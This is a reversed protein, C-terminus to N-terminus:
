GLVVPALVDLDAIAQDLTETLPQICVHDAGADLHERIRARIAEPSGWGILDDVLRDSGGDAFDAESYGLSLLNNVYNPLALYPRMNTRAMARASVPDEDLVVMLEPALLPGEGLVARARRTHEVPTFFPHAGATRERALELMRPRLAALMLPVPPDALPGRYSAADMGDLYARMASVPGAYDHGRATVLPAHSVGLGFLFRGPFAEGLAQSGAQAAYPDRAYINAIGTAIALTSTGSLLIASNSFVEKNTGGEGIWLTGFGLREIESAAARAEDAGVLGLRSLWVGVPGRDDFFSTRAQTM